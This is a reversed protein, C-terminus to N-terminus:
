RFFLIKVVMQSLDCFVAVVILSFGVAYNWRLPEKLYVVSFVSFV